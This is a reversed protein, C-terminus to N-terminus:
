QASQMDAEVQQEASQRVADEVVMEAQADPEANIFQQYQQQRLQAQANIEAIKRQQEKEEEIIDLLKQKPMASDDPLANAYLELQGIM